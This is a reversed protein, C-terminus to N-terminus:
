PGERAPAGAGAPVAPGGDAGIPGRAEEDGDGGARAARGGGPGHELFARRLRHRLVKGAANRPIEDVFRVGAPRKYSGLQDACAGLLTAVSPPREGPVVFAVPVEGWEPSPVGAVAVERVGPVGGLVREIEAPYVNQGGRIIVDGRRDVLYLYGAADMSGLDGTRLWGDRVAAETAEPDRWYGRMTGDGRVCIEGLEGRPVPRGADDHVEIQCGPLMRGSSRPPDSDGDPTYRATAIPGGESLGYSNRVPRDFRAVAERLLDEPMPSGGFVVERLSSLDTSDFARARLVFRVMSPVLFTLTPRFREVDALFGQPTFEHRVVLTGGAALLALAVVVSGHFLPCPYLLVDDPTFGFEALVATYGAAVSRHTLAVGKARGSTASTHVIAFLEDLSPVPLSGAPGACLAEYEPSGLRVRRGDGLAPGLRDAVAADAVVIAPEVQRVVHDVEPAPFTPNVPCVVLGAKAAALYLEVVEVQNRACVVVRDGPNAGLGLLGQALADTRDDVERWSLRRHEDALATGEPRISRQRRLAHALWM